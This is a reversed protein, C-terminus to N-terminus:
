IEVGEAENYDRILVIYKKGNGTDIINLKAVIKLESNDKKNINTVFTSKVLIKDMKLKKFLVNHHKSEIDKKEFGTLMTFTPNIDQIIGNMDITIIGDLIGNLISIVNKERIVTEKQTRTLEEQTAQLEEMNQRMEEEQSALMESQTRSQELLLAINQTTKLNYIASAIGDNIKGIFEIKYKEFKNFSALEIVGYVIDNLIIPMILINSPNSTGLGSTIKIYDQPIETLHIPLKEFICRGVLGEGVRITKNVLKERNYAVAASLEYYIDSEDNDNMTFIGGQNADVYDIIFKVAASGMDNVSNGNKRLIEGIKSLGESFWIQQKTEIDRNKHEKEAQALHDRMDLLSEGLTDNKNLLKYETSYKKEKIENAFDGTKNLWNILTYASGAIKGIVNKFKLSITKLQKLDANNLSKILESIQLLPKTIQGIVLWVVIITLLLGAIGILITISIITNTEENIEDVPVTSVLAWPTISNGISFPTIQIFNTLGTENNENYFNFAIGKNIKDLIENNDSIFINDEFLNMGILDKNPHAVINGSNTVLIAYGTKYFKIKDILPQFSELSIDFGIVGKFKDDTIIPVITGTQLIEDQKKGTYSYYYSDMITEKLTSKPITYYDGVFLVGDNGSYELKIATKDKYYTTSFSGIKTCGPKNINLYDLSDLANPEWITWAALMNKNEKLVKKLMDQFTGRRKEADTNRYDEFLHAMVRNGSMFSELYQKIIASQQNSISQIESIAGNTAHKKLEIGSYVLVLIYVIAFSISVPFSIKFRISQFLKM